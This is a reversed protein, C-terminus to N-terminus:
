KRRATKLLGAVDAEVRTLRVRISELEVATKSDQASLSKVEKALGDIAKNTAAIANDVGKIARLVLWTVGGGAASLLVAVVAPADIGM